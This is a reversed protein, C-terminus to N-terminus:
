LKASKDRSHTGDPKNMVAAVAAGLLGSDDAFELVLKRRRQDHALPEKEALLDLVEQTKELCSWHKEPVSGCFAITVAASQESVVSDTDVVSFSDRQLRWLTFM